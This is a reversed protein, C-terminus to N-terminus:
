NTQWIVVKKMGPESEKKNCGCIRIPVILYLM